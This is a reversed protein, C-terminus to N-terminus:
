QAGHADLQEVEAALNARATQEWRDHGYATHFIRPSRLFRRLVEARGRRFDEDAVHSYETRIGAAYEAYRDPTSALVALDADCLMAGAEDGAAPQHTQTLRVLRMVEDILEPAAGAQELADAAVHASREENDSQGPQYVADHFWAALVLALEHEPPPQLEELRLLVDEVHMLDHYARHDQTYRPGLGGATVAADILQAARETTPHM